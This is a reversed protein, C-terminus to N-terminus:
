ATRRGKELEDDELRKKGFVHIRDTGRDAVYMRNEIVLLDRIDHSSPSGEKDNLSINQISYGDPTFLRICSQDGIYLIGEYHLICMPNEFVKDGLTRSYGYNRKILVQIRKNGSDCIYLFNQNFAIGYPNLFEVKNSGGKSTGIKTSLNFNIQGLTHHVQYVYLRHRGAITLYIRDNDIRMINGGQSSFPLIVSGMIERKFNIAKLNTWDVVYFLKNSYAIGKPYVFLSKPPSTKEISSKRWATVFTGDLTYQLVSDKPEDCIYLYTSDTTLGRPSSGAPLTWTQRLKQDWPIPACYELAMNCVVLPLLTFSDLLNLLARKLEDWM